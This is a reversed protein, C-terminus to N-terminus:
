TRIVKEGVMPQLVEPVVITGDKLHHLSRTVYIQGYIFDIDQWRLALIESRRMGTFLLLYFLAHYPTDRAAELFRIVEDENWIQM